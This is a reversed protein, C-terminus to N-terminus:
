KVKRKFVERNFLYALRPESLPKAGYKRTTYYLQSRIFDGIFMRMTMQNLDFTMVAPAVKDFEGSLDFREGVAVLLDDTLWAIGDILPGYNSILLLRFSKNSTFDYLRLEDSDGHALSYYGRKQIIGSGARPNVALLGNPSFLTLALHKKSRIKDISTSDEFQETLKKEEKFKFASLDFEPLRKKWNEQWLLFAQEESLLRLITSDTHTAKQGCAVKVNQLIPLTIIFFCLSLKKAIQM